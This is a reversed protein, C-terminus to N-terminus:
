RTKAHGNREAPIVKAEAYKGRSTAQLKRPAPQVHPMELHHNPHRQNRPYPILTVHEVRGRSPLM